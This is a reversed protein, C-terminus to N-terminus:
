WRRGLGFYFTAGPYHPGYPYGWYPQASPYAYYPHGYPAYPYAQPPAAPRRAVSPEGQELYAIVDAPLGRAALSRAQEPTVSYVLRSDRLKQIIVGSPTGARAMEVMEDFSVPIPKAVPAPAPAAPLAAEPLRQVAPAWALPTACGPLSALGLLALRL